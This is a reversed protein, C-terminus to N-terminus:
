MISIYLNVHSLSKSCVGRYDPNTIFRARVKPTQAERGCTLRLFTLRIYYANCVHMILVHQLTLLALSPSPFSVGLCQSVSNSVLGPGPNETCTLLASADKLSRQIIRLRDVSHSNDLFCSRRPVGLAEQLLQFTAIRLCGRFQSTM